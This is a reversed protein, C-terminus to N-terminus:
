YQGFGLFIVRGNVPNMVGVVRKGSPDHTVIKVNKLDPIDWITCDLDQAIVAKHKEKLSQITFLFAEDEKRVLFIGNRGGQSYGRFGYKLAAEYPKKIRDPNDLFMRLLHDSFTFYIEEAHMSPARTVPITRNGTFFQEVHKQFPGIGSSYYQQSSYYCEIKRM